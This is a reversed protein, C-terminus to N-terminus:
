IYSMLNQCAYNLFCRPSMLFFCLKNINCHFSLCVQETQVQECLECHVVYRKRLGSIKDRLQVLKGYTEDLQQDSIPEGALEQQQNTYNQLEKLKAQVDEDVLQLQHEYHTRDADHVPLSRTTLTEM